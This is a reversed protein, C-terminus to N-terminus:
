DQQHTSTRLIVPENHAIRRRADIDRVPVLGYGVRDVACSSSSAVAVCAVVSRM